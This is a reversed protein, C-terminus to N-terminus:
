GQQLIFDKKLVSFLIAACIYIAMAVCLTIRFGCYISLLVSAIGGVVTFLGNMAWAWAIAGAPKRQLGLIGLPFPMGLFFGVPFILVVATLIRVVEAKQLFFDFIAHQSVFLLFTSFLIGVFPIYWKSNPQIGLRSSSYSGIAASLLLSFVVTSYTYLPYGILKMFIQIFVLEFIIFGAGLCSFYLLTPIKGQWHSRGVKSFLLPVFIFVLAFILSAAGTIFLHVIDKPISKNMMQSNLIAATSFDM